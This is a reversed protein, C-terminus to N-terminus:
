KSFTYQNTLNGSAGASIGGAYTTAKSERETTKEAISSKDASDNGFSALQDPKVVAKSLM